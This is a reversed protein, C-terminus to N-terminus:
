IFAPNKASRRCSVEIDLCREFCMIQHRYPRPNPIGKALPQRVHGTSEGDTIERKELANTTVGKEKVLAPFLYLCVDTPHDATSQLVRDGSVPARSQLVLIDIKAFNIKIMRWARAANAVEDTIAFRAQPFVVGAGGNDVPKLNSTEDYGYQNWPPFRRFKLIFDRGTPSRV